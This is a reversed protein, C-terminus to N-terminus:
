HRNERAPKFEVPIVVSSDSKIVYANASVAGPPGDHVLMAGGNHNIPIPGGNFTSNTTVFYAKGPQLIFNKTYVGGTMSDTVTLTANVSTSSTNMFGWQTLFNAFSSWTPSFMTTDTVSVGVWSGNSDYNHVRMELYGSFTTSVVTKRIGGGWIRPSEATSDTIVVGTSIDTTPCWMSNINVAPTLAGGSNPGQWTMAEVVYSRGAEVYWTLTADYGSSALFYPGLVRGDAPSGIYFCDIAMTSSSLAFAIIVGVLLWWQFKM